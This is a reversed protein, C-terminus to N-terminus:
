AMAWLNAEKAATISWEQYMKAIESNRYRLRTYEANWLNAIEMISDIKAKIEEETMAAAQDKIQQEKTITGM